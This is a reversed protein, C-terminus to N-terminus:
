LLCKKMWTVCNPDLRTIQQGQSDNSKLFPPPLPPPPPPQPLASEPDLFTKVSPSQKSAANDMETEKTKWEETYNFKHLTQAKESIPSPTKSNSAAMFHALYTFISELPKSALYLNRGQYFFPCDVLISLECNCTQCLPPEEGRLLFAHTLHSHELRVRDLVVQDRRRAQSIGPWHGLHPQVCHLKNSTMNNWRAKWNERIFTHINPKADSAPIQMQTPELELGIKALEDVIENGKIGVHSPIWSLVIKKGNKQIEHIQELIKINIIIKPNKSNAEGVVKVLSLSGSLILFTDKRSTSVSDLAMCLAVAEATFISAKASVGPRM